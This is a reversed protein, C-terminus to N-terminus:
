ETGEDILWWGQKAVLEIAADFWKCFMGEVDPKRKMSEVLADLAAQYDPDSKRYPSLLGILGQLGEYAGKGEARERLIREIQGYVLWKPNEIHIHMKEEPM